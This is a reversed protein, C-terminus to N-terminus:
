IQSPFIPRWREDILTVNALCFRRSSRFHQHFSSMATLLWFEDDATVRIYARGGNTRKRQKKPSGGTYTDWAPDDHQRVHYIHEGSPGLWRECIWGPETPFDPFQGLYALSVPGPKEPNLFIMDSAMRESAIVWSKIFAGDVWLGCMHNCADCVRDSMFLDPLKEVSLAKPWIHEVSRFSGANKVNCCYICRRLESM